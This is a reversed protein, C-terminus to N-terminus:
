RGCCLKYKRGSGCSCPDNRGVKPEDRRVTAGRMAQPLTGAARFPRFFEHIDAVDATMQDIMSERRPPNAAGAPRDEEDLLAALAEIADLADAFEDEELMAEWSEPRMEVGRLFGVAWAVGDPRGQEDHALVPAFRQGALAHGVQRVHRRLLDFLGPPVDALWRDGPEGDADYDDPLGLIEALYENEPVPEAGCCLATVFGDLEEVVMADDRQLADLLEDLRDYDSASLPAADDSVPHPPVQGGAKASSDTTM